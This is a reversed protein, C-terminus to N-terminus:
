WSLFPHRRSKCFSLWQGFQCTKGTRVFRQDLHTYFDQIVSDMNPEMVLVASASYHRVVPRKMRAHKASEVQSFMHYQIQGNIVSSSNKYFDTKIWRSDTGYIVKSIEPYDIDLLNPGIRVVPGYKEHLGKVYPGYNATWM